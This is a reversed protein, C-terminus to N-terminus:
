EEAKLGRKLFLEGEGTLAGGVEGGSGEERDATCSVVQEEGNLATGAGEDVGTYASPKLQGFVKEPAREQKDGVNEEEMFVRDATVGEEEEPFDEDTLVPGGGEGVGDEANVLDKAAEQILWDM